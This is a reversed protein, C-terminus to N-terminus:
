RKEGGHCVIIWVAMASRRSVASVLCDAQVNVMAAVAESWFRFAASITLSSFKLGKSGTAAPCYADGEELRL